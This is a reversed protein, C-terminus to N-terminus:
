HCSFRAAEGVLLSLQCASAVQQVVCCTLLDTQPRPCQSPVAPLVVGGLALSRVGQLAPFDLHRSWDGQFSVLFRHKM